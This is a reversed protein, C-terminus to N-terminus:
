AILISCVVSVLAPIIISWFIKLIVDEYYHNMASVGSFTIAICYIYEGHEQGNSLLGIYNCSALKKSLALIDEKSLNIFNELDNIFYPEYKQNDNMIPSLKYLKKLFRYERYTM